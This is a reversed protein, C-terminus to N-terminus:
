RLSRAFYSCYRAVLPISARSAPRSCARPNTPESERMPRDGRDTLLITQPTRPQYRYM